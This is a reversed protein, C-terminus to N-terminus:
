QNKLTKIPNKNKDYELIGYDTNKVKFLYKLFNFNM